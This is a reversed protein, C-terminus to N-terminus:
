NFISEMKREGVPVLFLPIEGLSEHYVQYTRQALASGDELQFLLSFPERQRSGADGPGKDLAVAEILEATVHEDPDIEIRFQSGLQESFITVDKINTLEM